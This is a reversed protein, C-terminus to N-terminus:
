MLDVLMSYVSFYLFRKITNIDSNEKLYVINQQHHSQTTPTPLPLVGYQM